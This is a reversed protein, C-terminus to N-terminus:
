FWISTVGKCVIENSTATELWSAIITANKIRNTIEIQSSRFLVNAQDTMM